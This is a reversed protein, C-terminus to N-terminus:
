YLRVIDCMCSPSVQLVILDPDRPHIAHSNRPLRDLSAPEEEDDADNGDVARHTPAARGTGAAGASASSSANMQAQTSAIGALSNSFTQMTANIQQGFEHLKNEMNMKIEDIEVRTNSVSTATSASHTMSTKITQLTTSLSGIAQGISQDHAQFQEEMLRRLGELEQQPQRSDPQESARSLLQMVSNFKADLTQQLEDIRRKSEADSSSRTSTAISTANYM